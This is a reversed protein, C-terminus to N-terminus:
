YANDSGFLVRFTKLILKIDTIISKENIYRIDLNVQEEFTLKSRGNVQWYCTLGPLANLRQHDYETYQEVESPLAPRPGVLSMEGKLVNFLQPLEDLSTKRLVKGIKTIRPDNEMKFMPGTAENREKLTSLLEEANSVMSRFKYMKFTAGDKGVREQKFFVKGHRDELKIIIAIFILIPSLIILGCLSCIFDIIRKLLFYRKDSKDVIINGDPQKEIKSEEMVVM